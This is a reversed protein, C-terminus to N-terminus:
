KIYKSIRMDYRMAYWVTPTNQKEHKNKKQDNENENEEDINLHNANRASLSRSTENPTHSASEDVM